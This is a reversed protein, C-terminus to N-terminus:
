EGPDRESDVHPSDYISRGREAYWRVMGDWVEKATEAFEFLSRDRADIM